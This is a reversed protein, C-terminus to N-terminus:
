RDSRTESMRLLERIEGLRDYTRFLLIAGEFIVRTALTGFILPM